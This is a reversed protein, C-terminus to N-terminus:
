GVGGGGPPFARYRGIREYYSVLDCKQHEIEALYSNNLILAKNHETNLRGHPSCNQKVPGPKTMLKAVQDPVNSKM